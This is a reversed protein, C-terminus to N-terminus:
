EGVGRLDVSWGLSTSIRLAFAPPTTDRNAMRFDEEFVLTPLNTTETTELCGSACPGDDDRGHESSVQPQM